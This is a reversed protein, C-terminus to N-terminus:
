QGLDGAAAPDDAPDFGVDVFAPAVAALALRTKGVAQGFPDIATVTVTFRTAGDSALKTPDYALTASGPSWFYSALKPAAYSAVLAQEQGDGYAPGALSVDIRSVGPMADALGSALEVASGKLVVGDDVLNVTDDALPAPSAGVRIVALPPLANGGKTLRVGQVEASALLTEAEDRWYARIVLDQRDPLYTLLPLGAALRRAVEASTLIVVQPEAMGAPVHATLLVTAYNGASVGAVSGDDRLSSTGPLTKLLFRPAAVGAVGDKLKCGCSPAILIM